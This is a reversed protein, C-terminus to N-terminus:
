RMVFLTELVLQVLEQIRQPEPIWLLSVYLSLLVLALKKEKTEHRREKRRKEGKVKERKKTFLQVLHQQPHHRVLIPQLDSFVHIVEADVVLGERTVGEQGEKGGKREEINSERRDHRREISEEESRM